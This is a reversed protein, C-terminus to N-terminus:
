GSGVDYKSEVFATIRSVTEFNAPIVEGDAVKLHFREELFILLRLLALSDLIGSAILSEDPDLPGRGEDRVLEDRVFREIVSENNM